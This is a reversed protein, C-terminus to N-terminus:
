IQLAEANASPRTFRIVGRGWELDVSGVCTTRRFPSRQRPALMQCGRPRRRISSSLKGSGWILARRRASWVPQRPQGERLISTSHKVSRRPGSLTRASVAFNPASLFVFLPGRLEEHVQKVWLFPFAQLKKRNRQMRSHLFTKVYLYATM